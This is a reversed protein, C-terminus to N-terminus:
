TGIFHLVSSNYQEACDMQVMHGCNHLPKLKSGTINRHGYRMINKTFGGHMFRNPILRDRDGFVILTPVNIKFLKKRVFDTKTLGQVCKVNAYAYRDFDKAKILRVREEVLWEHEKKWRYFNNYRVAGWLDYEDVEKILSTSYVRGFWRQEKRSFPELGAPSTLVLSGPVKPYRIALSLAIHGGMSHGVVVPKHIKLAKIFEKVVDALAEMTYSFSGPKDSKGYGPLDLALVRYGRDKFVDVQYRWFKLNSGLGHIFLVDKKGSPNLEIYSINIPRTLDRTELAVYRHPWREGKVSTYPIQKFQLTGWRRYSRICGGLSFALTILLGLHIARKM